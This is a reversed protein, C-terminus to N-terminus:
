NGANKLERRLLHSKNIQSMIKDDIPMGRQIKAWTTLALKLRLNFLVNTDNNSDGAMEIETLILDITFSQLDRCQILGSAAQDYKMWISKFAKITEENIRMNESDIQLHYGDMIISIFMNLM